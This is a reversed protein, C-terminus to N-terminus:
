WGNPIMSRTRRTSRRRRKRLTAWWGSARRSPSTRPRAARCLVPSTLSVAPAAVLASAPLARFSAKLKSGRHVCVRNGQDNAIVEVKGNQFIAVCSYTTGLDVGVVPGTVAAPEDAAVHLLSSSCLILALVLRQVRMVTFPVAAPRRGAM